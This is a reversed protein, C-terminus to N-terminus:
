KFNLGINKKMFRVSMVPSTIFSVNERWGTDVCFSTWLLDFQSLGGHDLISVLDPKDSRSSKLIKVLFYKLCIEFQSFNFASWKTYLNIITLNDYVKKMEAM